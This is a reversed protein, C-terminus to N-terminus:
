ETNRNVDDRGTLPPIFEDNESFRKLHPITLALSVGLSEFDRKRCAAETVPADGAIYGGFTKKKPCLVPQDGPTDEFDLDEEGIMRRCVGCPNDSSGDLRGERRFFVPHPYFEDLLVFVESSEQLSRTDHFSMGRFLSGQRDRSFSITKLRSLLCSGRRDGVTFWVFNGLLSRGPRRKGFYGDLGFGNREEAGETTRFIGKWPVDESVFWSAASTTHRDICLVDRPIKGLHFLLPPVLPVSFPELGLDRGAAPFEVGYGM